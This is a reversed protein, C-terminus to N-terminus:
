LKTSRRGLKYHLVLNPCIRRLCSMKAQTDPKWLENVKETIEVVNNMWNQIDIHIIEGQQEVRVGELRLREKADNFNVQTQLNEFNSKCHTLYGVQRIAPEVAYKDVIGVIADSGVTSTSTKTCASSSWKCEKISNNNVSRLNHGALDKMKMEVGLEGRHKLLDEFSILHHVQGILLTDDPKVSAGTESKM